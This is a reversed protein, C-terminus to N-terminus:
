GLLKEIGFHFVWNLISLLAAVIVVMVVGVTSDKVIKNFTPWVIKKLESKVGKFWNVIGAGFSKKEKKDAM